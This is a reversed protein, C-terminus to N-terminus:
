TRMVPVYVEFLTMMVTIFSHFSRFPFPPFHALIPNFFNYLFIIESTLTSATLQQQRGKPPSLVNEALPQRAVVFVYDSKKGVVRPPTQSHAIISFNYLHHHIFHSFFFKIM